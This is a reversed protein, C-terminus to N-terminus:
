QSQGELRFLAVTKRVWESVDHYRDVSEVHQRTEGPFALCLHALYPIRIRDFVIGFQREEYWFRRKLAVAFSDRKSEELDHQCPFPIFMAPTNYKAPVETFWADLQSIHEVVSKSRWNSGSATQGLLLLKGSMRDPLDRWAIVDIGGDKLAKPLGDPIESRVAGYGFRSFANRLAPLFADGTARPFGFSSVSGALFGGAALCACIQFNNAIEMTIEKLEDGGQIQDSRIASTLLCFLYVQRGPQQAPDIERLVLTQRVFDVVFPYAEGVCTQRYDLEEFTSAVFQERTAEVISEDLTGGDSEDFIPEDIASDGSLDLVGLLTSKGSRGRSSFLASLELFDARISRTDAQAPEALTAM